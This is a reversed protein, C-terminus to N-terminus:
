PNCCVVGELFSTECNEGEKWQHCVMVARHGSLWPGVLNETANAPVEATHASLRNNETERSGTTHQRHGALCRRNSVCCTPALQSPYESDTLWRYAEDPSLSWSCCDCCRRALHDSGSSVSSSGTSCVLNAVRRCAARVACVCIWARSDIFAVLCCLCLCRSYVM